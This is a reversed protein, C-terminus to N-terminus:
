EPEVEEVAPDLESALDTLLDCDDLCNTDPATQRYAAAILLPAAATLADALATPLDHTEAHTTVFERWAVSAVHEPIIIASM